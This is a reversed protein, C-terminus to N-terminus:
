DGKQLKKIENIVQPYLTEVMFHYGVDNPHCVDVILSDKGSAEFTLGTDFVPINRRAAIEKIASRYAMYVPIEGRVFYNIRCKSEEEPTMKASYITPPDLFALGVHHQLCLSDFEDINEAFARLPEPKVSVPVHLFKENLLWIAYSGKVSWFHWPDEWNMERTWGIYKSFTMDNWGACLIILDPHLALLRTKLDILCQYSTYGMVGANIVEVPGAMEGRMRIIQELIAPYTASDSAAFEGYTISNGSCVIRFTGAPKNSSIESGRFGLSDIKVGLYPRGPVIRYGITSDPTHLGHRYRMGRQWELYLLVRVGLEIILFGVLLYTGSIVLVKKARPTLWRKMM